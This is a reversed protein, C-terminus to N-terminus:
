GAHQARAARLRRAQRHLRLAAGGSWRDPGAPVAGGALPQQPRDERHRTRDPEHGDGPPRELVGFRYFLRRSRATAPDIGDQLMIGFLPYRNESFIMSRYYVLPSSSEDGGRLSGGIFQCRSSSSNRRRSRMAWAMPPGSLTLRWCSPPRSVTRSRMSLSTSGSLKWSTPAM